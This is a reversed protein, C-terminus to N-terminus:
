LASVRGPNEAWRITMVMEESTIFGKFGSSHEDNPFTILPEQGKWVVCKAKPFLEKMLQEQSSLEVRVQRDGLRARKGIRTQDNFRSAALQAHEEREYEVYCDMSKATPRDMIIHIGFYSTHAPYRVLPANHGLFAVVENRTTGYPIQSLM